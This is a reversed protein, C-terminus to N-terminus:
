SRASGSLKRRVLWVGGVILAAAALARTYQRLIEEIARWNAGLLYGAWILLGNWLACSVLALAAVKLWPLRCMGSVLSIVSRIGSLFRNALVVWSGYRRFWAEAKEIAAAPLFRFNRKRFYEPHVLRGLWYYTMFGAASGLTTSAFVGFFREGTRGVVYAAFVVVTDGPVPPFINEIYASLFLAVYFWAASMHSIADIMSDLMGPLIGRRSTLAQAGARFSAGACRRRRTDPRRAPSLAM